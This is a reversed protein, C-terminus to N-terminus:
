RVTISRHGLRRRRPGLMPRRSRNRASGTRKSRSMSVAAIVDFRVKAAPTGAADIAASPRPPRPALADAKERRHAAITASTLTVSSGAIAFAKPLTYTKPSLRDSVPLLASRSPVSGPCTIVSLVYM